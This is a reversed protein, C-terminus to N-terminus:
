WLGCNAIRSSHVLATLTSTSSEIYMYQLFSFIVNNVTECRRERQFCWSTNNVIEEENWDIKQLQLSKWAYLKSKIKHYWKMVTELVVQLHVSPSTIFEFRDFLIRYFKPRSNKRGKYVHVLVITCPVDLTYNRNTIKIISLIKLPFIIYHWGLEPIVSKVYDRVCDRSNVKSNHELRSSGSGNKFHLLRTITAGFM